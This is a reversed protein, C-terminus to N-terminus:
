HPTISYIGGIKAQRAKMQREKEYVLREIEPQMDFKLYIRKEFEKIPMRYLTGTTSSCSVTGEHTSNERYGLEGRFTDRYIGFIGGREFVALKFIGQLKPKVLTSGTDSMNEVKAANTPNKDGLASNVVTLQKLDDNPKVVSHPGYLRQIQIEKKQNEAIKRTFSFDGNQVLYVFGLKDGERFVM